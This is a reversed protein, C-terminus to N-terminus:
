EGGDAPPAPQTALARIAAAISRGTVIGLRYDRVGDPGNGWPEIDGKGFRSWDADLEAIRAAEELAARRVADTDVTPPTARGLITLIRNCALLAAGHREAESSYASVDAMNGEAANFEVQDLAEARAKRYEDRIDVVLDLINDHCEAAPSFVVGHETFTVAGGPEPRCAVPEGAPAPQPAAVEDIIAAYTDCTEELTYGWAHALKMAQEYSLEVPVLRWQMDREGTSM